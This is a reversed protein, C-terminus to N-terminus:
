ACKHMREGYGQQQTDSFYRKQDQVIYIYILSFSWVAILMFGYSVLSLHEIRITQYHVHIEKMYLASVTAAAEMEM